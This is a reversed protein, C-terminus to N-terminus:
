DKIKKKIMRRFRKLMAEARREIEKALHEAVRNDDDDATEELREASHRLYKAAQRGAQARDVTHLWKASESLDIDDLTDQIDSCIEATSTVATRLRKTYREYQPYNTRIERRLRSAETNMQDIHQVYWRAHDLRREAAADSSHVILTLLLVSVIPLHRQM